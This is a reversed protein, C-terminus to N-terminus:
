AVQGLYLAISVWYLWLVITLILLKQVLGHPLRRAFISLTLGLAALLALPVGWFRLGGDQQLNATNISVISMGVILSVFTFYTSARHFALSHVKGPPGPVPRTAVLVPLMLASIGILAAAAHKLPRASHLLQAALALLGSAMAYYSLRVLGGGPGNLYLTLPVQIPDIDKRLIQAAGCIGLFCTAMAAVWLAVITDM